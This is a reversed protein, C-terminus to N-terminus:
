RAKAKNALKGWLRDLSETCFENSLDDTGHRVLMVIDLDSPIKSSTRFSERILRKIRNRQVALKVHKKAVILGIRSGLGENKTALILFHKSSVKYKTTKFVNGFADSNLLRVSKTFAQSKSLDPRKNLM